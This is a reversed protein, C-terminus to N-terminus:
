PTLLKFYRRFHCQSLLCEHGVQDKDCFLQWRWRCVIPDNPWSKQWLMLCEHGKHDISKIRFIWIGVYIGYTIRVLYFSALYRKVPCNMIQCLWLRHGENAYCLHLSGISRKGCLGSLQGSFTGTMKRGIDIGGAPWLKTRQVQM